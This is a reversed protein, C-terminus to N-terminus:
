YTSNHTLDFLFSVGAFLPANYLITGYAADAWLIIGKYYRSHSVMRNRITTKRERKRNLSEKGIRKSVSSKQSYM